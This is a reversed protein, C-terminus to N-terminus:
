DEVNTITAGGGTEGPETHRDEEGNNYSTNHHSPLHILVLAASSAAYIGYRGNSHIATADGHISVTGNDFVSFGDDSNHHMIVDKLHVIAEASEINFLRLGSKGNNSMKCRTAVLRSAGFVYVGYGSCNVTAVDVLNIGVASRLEIGNCDESINTVTM